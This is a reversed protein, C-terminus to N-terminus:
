LKLSDTLPLPPCQLAMTSAACTASTLHLYPRAAAPAVWWNPGAAGMPRRIAGKQLRDRQVLDRRSAMLSTSHTRCECGSAATERRWRYWNRRIGTM